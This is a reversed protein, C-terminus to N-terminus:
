WAPFAYSPPTFATTYRAVGKTFRIEDLYGNLNRLSGTTNEWGISIPFSCYAVKDMGSGSAALQGNLYISGTAGSRVFAVHHWTNQSVSTTALVLSNVGGNRIIFGLGTGTTTSDGTIYVAYGDAPTATGQGRTSFIMATRTAGADQASNGAIFLWTEITFDGLGFDLISDASRVLGDGTGDFYLSGAGYKKTSTSVKADALTQLDNLKALDVAAANTFNVLLSTNTVATLPATPPTFNATYVATGNVVRADSIYGNFPDENNDARGIYCPRTGSLNTTDTFSYVSTGNAYLNFSTGNKVVCVHTWENTRVVGASSAYGTVGNSWVLAGSSNVLFNNSFISSAVKRLCIIVQNSAFAKVYIYAELTFSSTGFTFVSNDATNIFDGSGDFYGSGGYFAPTYTQPPAFPSFSAVLVGGNKTVTFNNTSTDRFSNSQCTLLSTNTIATLPATPPTFDGTYVATGKVVRLNSIYGAFYESPGISYAGILVPESIDPLTVSATATASAVGNIYVTFVNGNRVAAVHAWNGLSITTTTTITVLTVGSSNIATFEVTRGVTFRLLVVGTGSTGHQSFIRGTQAVTPCLWVEITFNGTGFAFGANDPVSLYDGSGDFYNSWNPGYPSFSGQTTDGNRTISIANPGSDIFTNNQGNNISGGNQLLVVQKFYPDRPGPSQIRRLKHELTM